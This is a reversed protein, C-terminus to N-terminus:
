YDIFLYIMTSYFVSHVPVEEANEPPTMMASCSCDSAVHFSFLGILTAGAAKVARAVALEEAPDALAFALIAVDAARLPGDEGTAADRVELSQMSDGSGTPNNTTPHLSSVGM